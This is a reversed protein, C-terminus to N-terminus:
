TVIAFDPWEIAKPGVGIPFGIRSCIVVAEPGSGHNTVFILLEVSNASNRPLKLSPLPLKRSARYLGSDQRPREVALVESLKQPLLPGPSGSCLLAETPLSVSAKQKSGLLSPKGVWFAKPSCLNVM